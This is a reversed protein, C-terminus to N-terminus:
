LAVCLTGASFRGWQSDVNRMRRKRYDWLLNRTRVVLPENHKSRVGNMAPSALTNRDRTTMSQNM